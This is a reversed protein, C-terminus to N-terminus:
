VRLDFRHFPLGQPGYPKAPHIKFGLRRIWRVSKVNRADVWNELHKYRKLVHQLYGRMAKNLAGPNRDMVDTGLMWPQGSQEVLSVPFVGGIAALKGGIDFALVEAVEALKPVVKEPTQGTAAIIEQRDANRLDSLLVAFDEPTAPRIIWNAM